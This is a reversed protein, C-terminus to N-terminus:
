RAPASRAASPSPPWPLSHTRGYKRAIALASNGGIDAWSAGAARAEYATRGKSEGAPAKAQSVQIPQDKVVQSRIPDKAVKATVAELEAIRAELERVRAQAALRLGVEDDFEALAGKLTRMAPVIRAGQSKMWFLYGHDEDGFRLPALDFDGMMKQLLWDSPWAVGGEQNQGIHSRVDNWNLESM